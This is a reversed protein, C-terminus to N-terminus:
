TSAALRRGRAAERRLAGLVGLRERAGVYAALGDASADRRVIRSIRRPAHPAISRMFARDSGSRIQPNLGMLSFAGTINDAFLPVPTAGSIGAAIKTCYEYEDPLIDRLSRVWVIPLSNLWAILAERTSLHPLKATEM